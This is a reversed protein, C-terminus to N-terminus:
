NIEKGKANVTFRHEGTRCSFLVNSLASIDDYRAKLIIRGASDILGQKKNIYYVVFDSKLLIDTGDETVKGSNYYIYDFDDYMFSNAVTEGDTALLYQMGEKSVVFGDDTVTIDEYELPLKIKFLSDIVGTKSAIAVERYGNVPNGIFDYPPKFIWEGKTNIFALKGNEDMAACIGNKFLYDNKNASRSKSHFKFPIVVEGSTNIFGLKNDKVVAALGESFKWAAQYQAPIAIEGDVLSLYGRKGKHSFVAYSDTSKYNTIWDLEPTTYKHTQINWIRIKYNRYFVKKFGIGYYESYRAGYVRQYLNWGAFSIFALIIVLLLILTVKKFLSFKKM